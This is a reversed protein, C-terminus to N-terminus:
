TDHTLQINLCQHVERSFVCEPLRLHLRSALQSPAAALTSIAPSLPFSPRYPLLSLPLSHLTVLPRQKGCGVKLCQGLVSVEKSARREAGM